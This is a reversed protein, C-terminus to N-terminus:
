LYEEQQKILQDSLNQEYQKMYEDSNENIPEVRPSSLYHYVHRWAYLTADSLHNQCRPDEKDKQEDKWQLQAWENILENNSDKFIKLRLQLVDDRLIRLYDAKDTKQAPVLSLMHRNRMEVVAQKNAGDIITISIPYKQLTNRILGAVQTIDMESSKFSEVVVSFDVNEHYALISLATADNFGLDVGLVYTWNDLKFSEIITDDLLKIISLNDDTCWQNLYHTKFWSLEYANPNSEIIRKIEKEWNVRLYPNDFTTWKHISWGKEVGETVREFFTRPINECTGLLIMQGDLDTLAPMIMQYVLRNMDITFSGAEDICVRFLKQGLVKRMEKYGSDAGFLRIRSGNLGIIIGKNEITRFQIGNDELLETLVSWIIEKASDLTLAIYLQNSKPKNIFADILERAVTNTKGGRRTCNYAKLKSNDLIAEKQKLFSEDILNFKKARQKLHNIIQELNM